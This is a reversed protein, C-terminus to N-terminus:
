YSRHTCNHWQYDIPFQDEKGYCVSRAVKLYDGVAERVECSELFEKVGARCAHNASFWIEILQEESLRNFPHESSKARCTQGLFHQRYCEKFRYASAIDNEIKQQFRQAKMFVPESAAANTTLLAIVVINWVLKM